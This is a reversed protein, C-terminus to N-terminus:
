HLQEPCESVSLCHLIDIYAKIGSELSIIQFLHSKIRKKKEARLRGRATSLPLLFTLFELLCHSLEVRSARAKSLRGRNLCISLLGRSLECLYSHM